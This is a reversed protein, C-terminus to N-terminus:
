TSMSVQAYAERYDVQRRQKVLRETHEGLLATEEVSVCSDIDIVSCQNNNGHVYKYPYFHVQKKADSGTVIESRSSGAQEDDPNWDGSDDM